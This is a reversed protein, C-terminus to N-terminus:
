GEARDRYTEDLFEDLPEDDPWGGKLLALKRLPEIGQAKALEEISKGSFFDAATVSLPDSPETSRIPSKNPKVRSRISPLM